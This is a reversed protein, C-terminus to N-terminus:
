RAVRKDSLNNIVFQKEKQVLSQCWETITAQRKYVLRKTLSDFTKAVKTKGAAFVHRIERAGDTRIHRFAEEVVDPHEDATLTALVSHPTTPNQAIAKRVRYNEDKSLTLLVEESLSPNCALRARVYDNNSHLAKYLFGSPANPNQEVYEAVHRRERAGNLMRALAGTPLSPNLAVEELFTDQNHPDALEVLAEIPTNPNMAADSAVEWDEDHALNALIDAPTSVNRAVGSRADPDAHISLKKLTTIPLAPNQALEGTIFGSEKEMEEMLRELLSLPASPNAAVYYKWESDKALLELSESPTNPNEAIDSLDSGDDFCGDEKNWCNEVFSALIHPPTSPNLGLAEFCVEKEALLELFRAPASPNKAYGNLAAWKHKSEKLLDAVRNPLTSLIDSPIPEEKSDEKDETKNFPDKKGLSKLTEASPIIKCWAALLTLANKKETKYKEPTLDKAFAYEIRTNTFGSPNTEFGDPVPIDLSPDIDIVFSLSDGACYSTQEDYTKYGKKALAIMAKQIDEDLWHNNNLLSGHGCICEDISHKCDLCVYREFVSKNRALNAKQYPKLQPSKKKHNFYAKNAPLNKCWELLDNLARRKEEEFTAVDLKADFAYELINKSRIIKFGRPAEIDLSPAHESNSFAIYIHGGPGHGECSHETRYSKENLVSLADRIGKDIQVLSSPPYIECTCEHVEHFCRICVFEHILSQQTKERM